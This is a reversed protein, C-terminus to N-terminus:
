RDVHATRRSPIRGGIVRVIGALDNWTQIKELKSLKFLEIIRPAQHQGIEVLLGRRARLAAAPILERYVHLGDYGGDLAERPEFNSVEPQLSEIEATPIYPPNSVVWDIPRQEPIARLLDGELVAVRDQLGLADRNARTVRLATPSRDTAYVRVSPRSHAIALGICGSGCGIDAIYAIEESERIWELAADVLTETDARPVLVGPEVKLEIAHFDRQGRIYALPERKGRRGVVSRLQELEPGSMPRDFSLYLQMRGVRLVHCLLLEAELRPADIGRERLFRETKTLVEVLTIM